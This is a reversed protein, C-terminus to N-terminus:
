LHSGSYNVIRLQDAGGTDIAIHNMRRLQSVTRVSFAALHLSSDPMILADLINGIKSSISGGSLGTWSFNGTACQM